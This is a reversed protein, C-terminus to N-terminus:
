SPPPASLSSRVAGAGFRLFFATWCGLGLLKLSEELFYHWGPAPPREVVDMGHSAGFLLLAAVLLTPGRRALVGRFAVLLGALAIGYTGVVVTEPVGLFGPAIWEHFMFFDDVMLVGSLLGFGLLAGRDGRWTAREGVLGASYLAVVCATGWLFVGLNSYLGSYVPVDALSFVDRTFRSVPEGTVRALVPLAAAALVVPVLVLIAPPGDRGAGSREKM